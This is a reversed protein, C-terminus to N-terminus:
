LGNETPTARSPPFATEPVGGARVSNVNQIQSQADPNAGAGAVAGAAIAQGPSPGSAVGALMKTVAAQAELLEDRKLKDVDIDLAKMVETLFKEFSYTRIFEEVLIQNAAITQLLSTLRRFDKLKALVSSIGYVQYTLGNVTAAFRQAPSLNLLMAAEDVGILKELEDRDFDDVHQCAVQWSRELLPRLFNAEIMEVMGNLMSTLTQSSEVVETASTPKSAGGIRAENTLGAATGESAVINFMALVEPSLGATDVREIVKANPPAAESIRVTQGPMLGGSVESEDVLWGPRIQKIGYAAMMANDLALNFIENQTLNLATASDMLARHWISLAVRVIPSVIYPSKQHWFPNKEPKRILHTENAVACVVNEHLVEGTPGLITGWFEHIRVKKRFSKEPVNQGTIRAKEAEKMWDGYDGALAEVAAADYIGDPNDASRVQRQVDFLDQEIYEIEYLGRGTPDPYYNEPSVPDLALGWSKENRVYLKSQARGKSFTTRAVYKPKIALRGHVKTIMLSGLVGLKLTEEFKSTFNAKDLHRGLLTKVTKATIAAKKVGPSLQTDYWGDLDTLGQMLFSVIQETAEYQKPLFERSQGEQKHSWDQKLHNCDFNRRNLLMRDRRSSDAEQKFNIVCQVVDRDNSSPSKMRAM